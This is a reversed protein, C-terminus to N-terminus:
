DEGFLQRVDETTVKGHNFGPADFIRATLTRGNMEVTMRGSSFDRSFIDPLKKAFIGPNLLKMLLKLFTNTAERAVYRGCIHLAERSRDDNRKGVVDVIQGTIENLLSIRYWEAHKVKGALLQQLEPSFGSQIRKWEDPSVNDRLYNACHALLYGRGQLETMPEERQHLEIIARDSRSSYRRSFTGPSRLTPHLAFMDAVYHTGGSLRFPTSKTGRVIWWPVPEPWNSLALRPTKTGKSVVTHANM